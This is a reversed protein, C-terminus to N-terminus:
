NPQLNFASATDAFFKMETRYFADFDAMGLHASEISFTGLAAIVDPKKLVAELARALRQNIAEPVTRPSFVGWWIVAALDAVGEQAFTPVDPLAKLRGLGTVALARLNGGEITPLVESVPTVMFTVRGSILDPLAQGGGKYLVPVAKIGTNRVFILPNLSAVGVSAYSTETPHARCYDILEKVSKIPLKSGTVLVAPSLGLRSVPTLDNLPDYNMDTMLVRNSALYTAGVLFTYGDPAAHAVYSSGINANAGPKNNVVVTQGLEKALAPMVIRAINDVGGGAAYPVVMTIPKDPWDALAAGHLGALLAFGLLHKALKLTTSSTIPKTHM